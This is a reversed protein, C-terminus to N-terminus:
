FFVEACSHHELALACVNTLVLVDIVSDRSTVLHPIGSGKDRSGSVIGSKSLDMAFM